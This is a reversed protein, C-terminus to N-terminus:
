AWRTRRRSYGRSSRWVRRIQGSGKWSVHDLDAEPDDPHTIDQFTKSLLAEDSYGVVECLSHDVQLWRGDNGVLAMGITAYSFASHFREEAERPTEPVRKYETVENLASARHKSM